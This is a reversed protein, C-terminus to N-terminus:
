VKSPPDSHRSGDKEPILYISGDRSKKIQRLVYRTFAKFKSLDRATVEKAMREHAQLLNNIIHDQRQKKESILM